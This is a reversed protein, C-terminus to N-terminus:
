GENSQASHSARSNEGRAQRIGRRGHLQIRALQDLLHSWALEEIVEYTCSDCRRVADLYHRWAIAVLVFRTDHPLTAARPM